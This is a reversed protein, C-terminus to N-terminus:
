KDWGLLQRTRIATPKTSAMFTDKYDKVEIGEKANQQRHLWGAVDNIYNHQEQSEIARPCHVARLHVIADFADYDPANNLLLCVFSTGSRGHGGVCATLVDGTINANLVSWFEPTVAPAKRDDWDIQLIKAQPCNVAYPALINILEYPGKLVDRPNVQWSNFIDGCDVVYDFRDKTQKAGLLNAVWLRMQGGLRDFVAVPREPAPIHSCFGGYGSTVRGTLLPVGTKPLGITGHTTKACASGHATTETVLTFKTVTGDKRKVVWWKLDELKFPFIDKSTGSINQTNQM